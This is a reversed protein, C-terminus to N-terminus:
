VRLGAWRSDVGTLTLTRSDDQNITINIRLAKGTVDFQEGWEVITLADESEIELEEFAKRPDPFDLIRYADVHHIPFEGRYSKVMVFTPSTVQENVGLSKILTQALFTKGAGLPGDFLLLDGARLQGALTRGFASMEGENACNLVQRM